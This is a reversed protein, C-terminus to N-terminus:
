LSEREGFLQRQLRKSPSHANQNSYTLSDGFQQAAFLGEIRERLQTIRSKAGLLEARHASVANPNTANVKKKELSELRKRARYMAQALACIERCQQLSMMSM